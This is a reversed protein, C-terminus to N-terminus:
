TSCIFLLAIRLIQCYAFGAKIRVRLFSLVYAFLVYCIIYFAYRVVSFAFYHLLSACYVVPLAVLVNVRTLRM